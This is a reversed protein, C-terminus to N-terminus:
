RRRRSSSEAVILRGQQHTPPAGDKGGDDDQKSHAASIDPGFLQELFIYEGKSAHDRQKTAHGQYM